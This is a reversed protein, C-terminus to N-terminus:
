TTQENVTKEFLEKNFPLFFIPHENCNDDALLVNKFDEPNDILFVNKYHFIHEQRMYSSKKLICIREGQQLGEYVATSQITLLVDTMKILSPIDWEDTIVKVQTFNAFKEKYWQYESYQNPHLKFYYTFKGPDDDSFCDMLFNSLEEGFVDASVVLVGNKYNETKLTPLISFADNGIALVQVGPLNLNKFWFDSFSFIKNPLYVSDSPIQSPYSYALHGRDVIGHQFEYIPIRLDRCAAILGKQIGNQTLFVKQIGWRHLYFAYFRKQIYFLNYLKELQSTTMSCQPFTLRVLSLLNAFDYKPRKIFRTCFSFPFLGLVFSENYKLCPSNSKVSSELLIADGLPLCAMVNAANKDILTGDKCRNRSALYLLYKKRVFLAKFWFFLNYCIYKYDRKQGKQHVSSNQWLLNIYIQFRVIDWVHIGSSDKYKFLNNRREFAM